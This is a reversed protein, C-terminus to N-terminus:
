GPLIELLGEVTAVTAFLMGVGIFGFGVVKNIIRQAKKDRASTAFRSAVNRVDLVIAVGLGVCFFGALLPGLLGWGDVQTGNATM